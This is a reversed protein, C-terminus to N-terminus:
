ASQTSSGEKSKPKQARKYVKHAQANKAKLNKTKRTHGKHAQEKKKQLVRQKQKQSKSKSGKSKNGFLKRIFEKMHRNPSAQSINWPYTPSRKFHKCRLMLIQSRLHLSMRLGNSFIGFLFIRQKSKLCQM